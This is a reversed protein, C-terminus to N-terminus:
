TIIVKRPRNNGALIYQLDVSLTDTSQNRHQSVMHALHEIHCSELIMCIGTDLQYLPLDM